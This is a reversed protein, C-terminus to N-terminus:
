KRITPQYKNDAMQLFGSLGLDYNRDIKVTKNIYCPEISFSFVLNNKYIHGQNGNDYWQVADGLEALEARFATEKDIYEQAYAKKEEEENLLYDLWEDLKKATPKGVKNPHENKNEYSKTHKHRYPNVLYFRYVKDTYHCKYARLLYGKYDLIVAVSELHIKGDYESTYAIERLKCVSAFPALKKRLGELETNQYESLQLGHKSVESINIITRM